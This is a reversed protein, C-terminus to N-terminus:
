FIHCRFTSRGWCHSFFQVIGGGHFYVIIFFWIKTWADDTMHINNMCWWDIGMNGHKFGCHVWVGCVCQIEQILNVLPNKINWSSTKGGAAWLAGCLTKAGDWSTKGWCCVSCKTRWHNIIDFSHFDFETWIQKVQNHKTKFFHPQRFNCDFIAGLGGWM